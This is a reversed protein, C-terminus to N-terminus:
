ARLRRAWRKARRALDAAPRLAVTRDLLPLAHIDTRSSRQFGLEPIALWTELQPHAARMWCYAGDVHMPGGQPDGEPRSLMAKLFPVAISVARRSLAVFHLTCVAMAPDARLLGDPAVMGPAVAHGGYFVDWNQQSLRALTAPLRHEIDAVFDLDDELILVTEAGAELAQELVALHSLFCGRAGVSSFGGPEDPRCARHFAIQKGDPALGLRALEASIERRRDTRSPLNIIRIHEFTDLM